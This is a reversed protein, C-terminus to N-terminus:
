VFICGYCKLWTTRLCSPLWLVAAVLSLPLSSGIYFWHWDNPWTQLELDYALTWPWLLFINTKPQLHSYLQSFWIRCCQPLAFRFRFSYIPLVMRLKTPTVEVSPRKTRFWILLCHSLIDDRDLELERSTLVYRRTVWTVRAHPTKGRRTTSGPRPSTWPTTAITAPSLRPGIQSNLKMVACDVRWWVGPSEDARRNDGRHAAATESDREDRWSWRGVNQWRWM